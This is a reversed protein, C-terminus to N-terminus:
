SAFHPMDLWKRCKLVVEPKLESRVIRCYACPKSSPLGNTGDLVLRQATHAFILCFRGDRHSCLRFRFYFYPPSLFFWSKSGSKRNVEESLKESPRVMKGCYLVDCIVSLCVSSVTYWVSSRYYPWGFFQLNYVSNVAVSRFCGVDYLAINVVIEREGEPQFDRPHPTLWQTLLILWLLM